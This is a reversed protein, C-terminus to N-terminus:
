TSPKTAQSTRARLGAEWGDPLAPADPMEFGPWARWAPPNLTRFLHKQRESDHEITNRSRWAMLAFQAVDRTFRPLERIWRWLIALQGPEEDLEAREYGCAAMTERNLRETLRIEVPSWARWSPQPRKSIPKSASGFWPVPPTDRPAYSPHDLVEDAWPEGVYDLVQAMVARPDEILDEMRIQLIRDAFPETQKQEASCMFTGGSITGSAWPMQTLSRVVGRPDRVIRVVRADPYDAFIEALNASHSPTKDGWRPKAHQSAQVRMIATYLQKIDSRPLPCPLGPLFTAPDLQLWRFSFTQLYDRLYDEGSREEPVLGAWVYFSAEHTLHIRPHASLMMRLLTTGSRGTGIVFIPSDESSIPPRVDARPAPPAVMALGPRVRFAASAM